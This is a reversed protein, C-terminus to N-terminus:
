VRSFNHIQGARGSIHMEGFAESPEVFIEAQPNSKVNQAWAWTIMWAMFVNKLYVEAEVSREPASLIIQSIKTKNQNPGVGAVFFLSLSRVGHPIHLTISVPCPYGTVRLSSSFSM